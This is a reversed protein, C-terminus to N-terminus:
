LAAAVEVVEEIEAEIRVLGPTRYKFSQHRMQRTAFLRERIKAEALRPAGGILMSVRKIGTGLEREGIRHRGVCERALGVAHQHAAECGASTRLDDLSVSLQLEVLSAGRQDRGVCAAIRERHRLVYPQEQERVQLM